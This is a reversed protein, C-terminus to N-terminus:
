RRGAELYADESAGAALARLEVIFQDLLAPESKVHLAARSAVEKKAFVAFESDQECSVFLRGPSLFHFRARFAGGAYEPGFEGFRLDFLGGHVHEKFVHLSSVADELVGHGAYVKNSFCSRGDSVVNRLEVLDDDSWVSSIQIGPKM